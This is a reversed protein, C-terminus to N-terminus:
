CSTAAKLQVIDDVVGGAFVLFHAIFISPLYTEIEPLHEPHRRFWVLLGAWFAVFLVWGGTNPTPQEHRKRGQPLDLLHWRRSWRIVPPLLFLTLFFSTAAAFLYDLM